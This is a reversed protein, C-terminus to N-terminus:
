LFAKRVISLTVRPLILTNTVIQLNVYFDAEIQGDILSVLVDFLKNAGSSKIRPHVERLTEVFDRQRLQQAEKKNLYKENFNFLNSKLFLEALETVTVTSVDIEDEEDIKEESCVIGKWASYQSVFWSCGDCM